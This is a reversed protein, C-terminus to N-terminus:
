DTSAAITAARQLLQVKRKMTAALHQSVYSNSPDRELALRADEIANDIAALSQEIIEITEPDLRDRSAELQARLGAITSDYESSSFGVLVNPVSTSPEQAMQLETTRPLLALVTLSTVIMHAIGAAMLQPVTFSIRRVRASRAATIPVPREGTDGTRIQQAIGSWIAQTPPRDDLAGARAIVRRLRELTERCAACQDLHTELEAREAQSLEDDLYESRRDTWQDNM